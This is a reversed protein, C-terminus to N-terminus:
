IEESVEKGDVMYRIEAQEFDDACLVIEGLQYDTTVEFLADDLNDAEVEINRVLTEVIQMKYVAM